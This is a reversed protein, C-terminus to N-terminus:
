RGVPWVLDLARRRSRRCRGGAMKDSSLGRGPLHNEVRRGEGILGAMDFTPMTLGADACCTPVLEGIATAFLNGRYARACPPCIDACLVSSRHAAKRRHASLSARFGCCLAGFAVILGLALAIALLPDRAFTSSVILIRKHLHRTAANGSHRHRRSCSWGLMPHSETLGRIESM